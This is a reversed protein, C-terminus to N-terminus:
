RRRHAWPATVIVHQVPQYQAVFDLYPLGPFDGGLQFLIGAALVQMDGARACFRIGHADAVALDHEQALMRDDIPAMGDACGHGDRHFATTSSQSSPICRIMGRQPTSYWNALFGLSRRENSRVAPTISSSSPSFPRAIRISTKESTGRLMPSPPEAAMATAM